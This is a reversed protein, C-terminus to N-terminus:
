SAISHWCSAGRRSRPSGATPRSSCPTRPKRSHSITRTTPRSATSRRLPARPCPLTSASRERRVSRNSCPFACTDTGLADYNRRTRWSAVSRTRSGCRRRDHPLQGRAPAPSCVLYALCRARSIAVNLRNRSLLFELGRPVDEGSSTAMSYLVVDAEQGQFKDVTGVRSARRAARERLLNVQANYPAVVMIETAPSARRSCGSSRAGRGGRGGRSRSRGAARRARGAPLPARDRAADDRRPAAPTPGCGGRTSSRRSTAASTRTCGSPASSSSGATPRSRRTRRRAPAQARLRRRRGPAHGPAGARAAAPRRRARPEAGCTGMALADALSVQGAEDIFLYDLAATSSTARSSGPRAASSRRTAATTRARHRERDARGRLVVRPQRREGEQRGAVTSGRGGRGRRAAQPDGQPEDLRRRRAQGAALLRAILRGSTWTKGSGPPGQIVLHRGDLSLVLAEMEDLDTTQVRRPRVADRRLVSELAPYRRDGALLSRGLRM